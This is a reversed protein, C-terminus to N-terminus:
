YHSLDFNCITQYSATYLFSCWKQEIGTLSYGSDLQSSVDSFLWAPCEGFYCIQLGRFYWPWSCSPSFVLSPPLIFLCLYICETIRFQIREKYPVDNPTQSFSLPLIPHYCTDMNNGSKWSQKTKICFIIRM